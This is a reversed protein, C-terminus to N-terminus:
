AITKVVSTLPIRRWQYTYMDDYGENFTSVTTRKKVWTNQSIRYDVNYETLNNKM